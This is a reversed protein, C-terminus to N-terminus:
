DREIASPSLGRDAGIIRISRGDAALITSLRETIVEVGPDLDPDSGLDLALDGTTAGALEMLQRELTRYSGVWILGVPEAVTEGTGQGVDPDTRAEVRLPRALHVLGTLAVGALVAWQVAPTLALTAAFTFWALGAEVPSGRWLGVLAVPQILGLVAGIVIAGLVAQPLGDLVSAFSLFGLVVLGTVGGSWRTRAGALRNVSSRSFSGGVPFTGSVAATMNALGSAALERNADWTTRDEKAFLRAISAPEAFGILAIILGGIFLSGFSSWPLDLSLSPFGEPIPNTDGVTLIGDDIRSYALGALVAFAVGPFLRHLRRGGLMIVLTAISLGIA